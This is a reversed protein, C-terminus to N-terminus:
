DGFGRGNPGKTTTTQPQPSRRFPLIGALASGVRGFFSPPTKPTVIPQLISTIVALELPCNKYESTIASRMPGSMDRFEEKDFAACTLAKAQALELSDYSGPQYFREDRECYFDLTRSIRDTYKLYALPHERVLQLGKLSLLHTLRSPKGDAARLCVVWAENQACILNLIEREPASSVADIKGLIVEAVRDEDEPVGLVYPPLLYMAHDRQLPHYPEEKAYAIGDDLISKAEDSGPACYNHGRRLIFKRTALDNKSLLGKQMIEVAYEMVLAQELSNAGVFFDDKAGEVHLPGPSSANDLSELLWSFPESDGENIIAKRHMALGERILKEIEPADTPYNRAVAQIVSNGADEDYLAVCSELIPLALELSLPQLMDINQALQVREPYPLKKVEPVM